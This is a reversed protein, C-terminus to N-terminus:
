VRNMIIREFTQFQSLIEKVKNKPSITSEKVRDTSFLSM